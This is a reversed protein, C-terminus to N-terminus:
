HIIMTINLAVPHNSVNRVRLIKFRQRGKAKIRFGNPDSDSYEYIEATTGVLSNNTSGSRVVGFTRDKDICSRLMNIIQTSYEVMPLTQEPFLIVSKEFLLPLNVYIGNDLLTRGRLVEM